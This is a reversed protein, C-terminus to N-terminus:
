ISLCLFSELLFQCKIKKKNFLYTILRFHIKYLEFDICFKSCRSRPDLRRDIATIKPHNPNNKTNKLIKVIENFFINSAINLYNHNNFFCNNIILWMIRKCNPIIM